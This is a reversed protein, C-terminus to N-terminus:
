ASGALLDHALSLALEGDEGDLHALVAAKARWGALTVAPIAAAEARAARGAASIARVATWNAGTCRGDDGALRASEVFGAIITDCLRILNADAAAPSATPSLAAIKSLITNAESM